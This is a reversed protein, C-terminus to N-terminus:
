RPTGFSLARSVLPAMQMPKPRVQPRRAPRRRALRRTLLRRAPRPHSRRRAPAPLPHAPLPRGRLRRRPHLRHRRRRHRGNSQAPPPDPPTQLPAAQGLLPKNPTPVRALMFRRSRVLALRQRNRQHSLHHPTRTTSSPADWPRLRTARASRPLSACLVAATWHRSMLTSLTRLPSILGSTATRCALATPAQSCPWVLLGPM